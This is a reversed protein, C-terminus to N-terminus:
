QKVIKNIDDLIKAIYFKCDEESLGSKCYLSITKNNIVGEIIINEGNLMLVGHGLMRDNSTFGLQKFSPLMNKTIASSLIVSTIHRGGCTKSDSKIM